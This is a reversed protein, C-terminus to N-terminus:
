INYHRMSLLIVERRTPIIKIIIIVKDKDMPPNLRNSFFTLLVAVESGSAVITAVIVGAGVSVGVGKTFLISSTCTSQSNKTSVM